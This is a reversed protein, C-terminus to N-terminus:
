PDKFGYYGARATPRLDPRAMEVRVPHFAPADPPLSHPYYGIYYQRRLDRLIDAFAQDLPAGLSPYFTRGGTDKAVLALANEGGVNRGADNSIPVVVIPYIVADALHAEKIADQYRYKSTTDGGDTVIVEVHRGDRNTIERSSLVIADFLSTGGVSNLTRLSNNLASPSRTFDKLLTVQYNFSYVSAADRVNGSGLLAKFFKGISTKEVGVDKLTSGSTDILVAVSLPLETQAEFPGIDQKVGCDYVTFDKAQLSGVLEGRADKVNVLLRVLKVDVKYTSLPRTQSVLPLALVAALSVRGWRTM